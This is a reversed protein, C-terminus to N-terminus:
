HNSKFFHMCCSFFTQTFTLTLNWSLLKYLQSWSFTHKLQMSLSITIFVVGFLAYLMFFTKTWCTLTLNWSLLKYSRSSSEHDFLCYKLQPHYLDVFLSNLNQIFMFHKSKLEFCFESNPQAYFCSQIFKFSQCSWKHESCINESM